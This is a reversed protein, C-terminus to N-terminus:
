IRSPRRGGRSRDAAGRWFCAAMLPVGLCCSLRDRIRGYRGGHSAALLPQTALLSGLVVIPVLWGRKMPYAGALFPAVLLWFSVPM